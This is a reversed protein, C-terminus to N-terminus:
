IVKDLDDSANFESYSASKPMSKCSELNHYSEQICLYTLSYKILV